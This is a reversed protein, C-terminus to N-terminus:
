NIIFLSEINNVIKLNSNSLINFLFLDGYNLIKTKIKLPINKKENNLKNLFNKFKKIYIKLYFLINDNIFNFGQNILFKKLKLITNDDSNGQKIQNFLYILYFLFLDLSQSLSLSQGIEKPNLNKKIENKFILNKPKSLMYEFDKTLETPFLRIFGNGSLINREDELNILLQDIEEINNYSNFLKNEYENLDNYNIDPIGIISLAQAVLPGKVQYDVEEETALFPYTNIELLYPHFSKDLLIDYGYLEFYPSIIFNRTKSCMFPQILTLSKIVVDNISNMIEEKSKKYRHEVEKLLDTLSWKFDSSWKDDNKNLTANTIHSLIDDTSKTYLHTAFRALGEKFIFARLPYWSTVLVYIRLDFKFGDILLPNSIYESVVSERPINYFDSYSTLKIGYGCSGKPPKSIFKMSPNIKMFNFLESRDNPLVYSKPFFTEFNNIYNSKQLINAFEAKNGIIKKSFPFHNIKQLRSNPSIRDTEPSSLWAINYEQNEIKEFGNFELILSVLRKNYSGNIYKRNKNQNNNNELLEIETLPYKFIIFNDNNM